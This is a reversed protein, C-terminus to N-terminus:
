AAAIGVQPRNERASSAYTSALPACFQAEDIRQGGGNASVGSLSVSCKMVLDATGRGGQMEVESGPKIGVLKSHEEHCSTCKTKVM